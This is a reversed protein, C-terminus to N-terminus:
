LQIGLVSAIFDRIHVNADNPKEVLVWHSAGSVIEKKLGATFYKEQGDALEPRLVIDKDAMVIMAPIKFQFDPNDRAFPLEDYGNLERTRYWNCPGRLGSRLYEQVYHDIIKKSVIPSPGVTSFREAHIGHEATFVRDGEPTTGGYNGNMFATMNDATHGVAAEVSGDALFLQYRFKPMAKVLEETSVIVPEPPFYPVCFSFVARVLQPYYMAMRWVFAGGWDHGGLIVPHATNARILAAIEATMKKITYEEYSDPASTQGYGLMDPIIVELGLSQLYPVQFRWGMGLDPWGHILVVTAIPLGKPKALMYHYTHDGITFKKHVVRPDNPVLSETAM